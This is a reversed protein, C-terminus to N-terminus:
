PIQPPLLDEETRGRGHLTLTHRAFKDLVSHYLCDSPRPAAPPLAPPDRLNESDTWDGTTASLHREAPPSRGGSGGNRSAPSNRFRILVGGWGVGGSGVVVLV